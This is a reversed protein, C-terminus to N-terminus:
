DTYRLCPSPGETASVSLGLDAVSPQSTVRGRRTQVVGCEGEWSGWEWATGTERCAGRCDRETGVSEPGEAPEREAARTGFRRHERPTRVHTRCERVLLAM